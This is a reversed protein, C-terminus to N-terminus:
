QYNIRGFKYKKKKIAYFLTEGSGIRLSVKPRTFIKSDKDNFMVNRQLSGDPSLATLVTVMKGSVGNRVSSYNSAINKPHDNYIFYLNDNAYSLTYSSYYGYDNVTHQFKPIKKIWEISADPNVNVVIIDNYYYNYTTTSYGTRPDYSTIVRVIFQEAVIYVGGDARTILHDISYNFLERHKEAKRASMFEALFAPSFDKYGSAKIQKTSKDMSLYFTGTLGVASNNSYFGGIVIISGSIAFSIDSIFKDEISIETEAIKKSKYSYSILGYRYGPKGREKQISEKQISALMYVNGDNDIKYNSITFSRDKYPMELAASWIEKANQDLVKYSFKENGYKEFPENHLVLIKTSDDSLVFDFKGANRKKQSVIYDIEDPKGTYSGDQPNIRQVYAINKEETKDYYSAFLLLKNKVMFITEMRLEKNNVKPMTFEKIYELNLTTKNYKELIHGKGAFLGYKQRLCYFSEQDAGIIRIIDSKVARKM